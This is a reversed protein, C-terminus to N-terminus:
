NCPDDEENEYDFGPIHFTYPWVLATSPCFLPNMFHALTMLMSPFLNCDMKGFEVKKRKEPSIVAEHITLQRRKVAIFKEMQTSM